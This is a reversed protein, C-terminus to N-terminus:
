AEAVVAHWENSEKGDGLFARLEAAEERRQAAQTDGWRLKAYLKYSWERKDRIGDRVGEWFEQDMMQLEFESPGSAVPFESYFWIKFDASQNWKKWESQRMPNKKFIPENRSKAFWDKQFYQGEEVSSIALERFAEQRKNPKFELKAPDIWATIPEPEHDLPGGNKRNGNKREGNNDDSM